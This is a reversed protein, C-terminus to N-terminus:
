VKKVHELSMLTFGNIAAMTLTNYPCLGTMDRVSVPNDNIQELAKVMAAAQTNSVISLVAGCGVLLQDAKTQKGM